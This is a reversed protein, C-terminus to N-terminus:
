YRWQWSLPPIVCTWFLQNGLKWIYVFLSFSCSGTRYETGEFNKTRLKRLYLAHIWKYVIKLYIEKFTFFLTRNLHVANKFSLKFHKCFTYMVDFTDLILFFVIKLKYKNFWNRCNFSQFHNTKMNYLKFRKFYISSFAHIPRMNNFLIESKPSLSTTKWLKEIM